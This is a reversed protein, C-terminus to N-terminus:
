CMSGSKKCYFIYFMWTLANNHNINTKIYSPIDQVIDGGLVVNVLQMGRCIALIPKKLELIKKCFNVEFETREETEDIATPHKEQNFLKSDVDGGGTFIVGDVIQAFKNIQNSDIPIIILAM